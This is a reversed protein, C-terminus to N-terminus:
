ALSGLDDPAAVGDVSSARAASDADDDEVQGVLEIHARMAAQAGPVDQTEIALAIAQHQASSRPPRGRQSLSSLRTEHILAGLYDMLLGLVDNHAALTVAGHFREDGDAGIGGADIERQMLELASWIRALDEATRRQAALGALTVELTARAELVDTISRPRGLLNALARQHQPRQRLYTGDGHRVEIIGLAQLAALAQRVSARSVSFREALDRETPIRHGIAVRQEELEAILWEEIREYLVPRRSSDRFMPPLADGAM